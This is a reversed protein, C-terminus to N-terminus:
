QLVCPLISTPNRKDSVERRPGPGKISARGSEPEARAKKERFVVDFREKKILDLEGGVMGAEGPMRAANLGEKEKADDRQGCTERWLPRQHQRQIKRKRELNEM